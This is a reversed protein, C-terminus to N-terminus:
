DSSSPARAVLARLRAPEALVVSNLLLMVLAIPLGERWMFAHFAVIGITMPLQLLAAVFRTRPVLLFVGAVVHSATVAYSLGGTRMLHLLEIGVSGNAPPLPFPHVYFSGGFVLLPIALLVAAIVRIKNM